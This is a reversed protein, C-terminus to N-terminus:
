KKTVMAGDPRCCVVLVPLLSSETRSPSKAWLEQSLCHKNSSRQGGVRGRWRGSCSRSTTCTQTGCVQTRTCGHSAECRGDRPLRLRGSGHCASGRPSGSFPVIPLWSSQLAIRSARAGLPAIAVSHSLGGGLIPKEIEFTELPGAKLRAVHRVLWFTFPFPVAQKEPGKVSQRRGRRCLGRNAIQKM